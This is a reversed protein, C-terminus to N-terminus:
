RGPQDVSSASPPSPPPPPSLWVAELERWARQVNFGHREAYGTWGAYAPLPVVDRDQPLRGEDMAQLVGARLDRLYALTQALAAPPVGGEGARSWSAGILERVPLAQLRQLAALWADVHGQALEPVREGYVLGGAWLVGHAADWLVLDGETHGQEVALVRLARRGVRLVSGPALVHDPLVITTGAMQAEGVRATLSALCAPCRQRMAEGTAASAGIRLSGAVQAAGFAANALVNEAHAHTNVVWVVRAGFRCQLSRQLREGHRRSPGPDVLLAEGGDVVATVPAVHGGNDASIEGPREPLWAWVSPAVAQWPLSDAAGCGPQLAPEAAAAHGALLLGCLGALARLVTAGIKGSM